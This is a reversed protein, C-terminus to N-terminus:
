ELFLSYDFVEFGEEDVEFGDDGGGGVGGLEDKRAVNWTVKGGGDAGWCLEKRSGLLVLEENVRVRLCGKDLAHFMPPEHALFQADAGEGNFLFCDPGGYEGPICAWSNGWWSNEGRKRGWTGPDSSFVDHLLDVITAEEVDRIGRDAMLQVVRLVNAGVGESKDRAVTMILDARVDKLQQKPVSAKRKLNGISGDGSKFAKTLEDLKAQTAPWKEAGAANQLFILATPVPSCWTRGEQKRGKYLENPDHQM